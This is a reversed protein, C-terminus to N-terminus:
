QVIQEQKCKPCVVSEVVNSDMSYGHIARQLASINPALISSPRDIIFRHDCYKCTYESAYPSLIKSYTSINGQIKHSKLNELEEKLEQKETDDTSEELKKQKDKIISDIEEMKNKAELKRAELFDEFVKKNVKILEDIRNQYQSNKSITYITAVIAMVTFLVGLSTILIGLYSVWSGMNTNTSELIDLYQQQIAPDLRDIYLTDIRTSVQNLTDHKQM